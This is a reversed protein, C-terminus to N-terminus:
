GACFGYGCAWYGMSPNYACYGSEGSDSTCDSNNLCRDACTHCYFGQTGYFGGCDPSVTPSCRGGEGCDSDVRCNGPICENGNSAGAYGRTSGRCSCTGGDSCDTDVLCQDPGGGDLGGGDFEPVSADTAPTKSCTPPTPRHDVVSSFRACADGESEPQADAHAPGDSPDPSSDVGSGGSGGSGGERTALGGCHLSVAVVVLLPAAGIWPRMPPAMLLGLCPERWVTRARFTRDRRLSQWSGGAM